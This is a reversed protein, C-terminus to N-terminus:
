RAQITSQNAKTENDRAQRQARTARVAQWTSVCVGLILATLVLGTAVFALRNRRFAKELRYVTSPPRAVVPKDELHREIDLAFANATEYRRARDRQVAKLIIWDLDGRLERRLGVPTTHHREALPLAGAAGLTSIRRSPSPIDADGILHRAIYPSLVGLSDFPLVGTVLEYLVM